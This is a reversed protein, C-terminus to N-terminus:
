HLPVVRDVVFRVAEAREYPRIRFTAHIRTSVNTTLAVHQHPPQARITDVVALLWFHRDLVADVACARDVFAHLRTEVSVADRALREHDDRLATLMRDREAMRERLLAECVLHGENVAAINRVIGLAYRADTNAAITGVARKAEFIAMGDVIADLPYRAIAIRISREPDHLALRAFARDLYARVEPNQRAELTQRALQQQRCREDLAKRAQEIQEPTPTEGHIQVRSRGGRDRRPRHNVARFFTTVVLALMSRALGRADDGDLLLPPATTKFLGFGGEVHGKNQPREVTARIRTTGDLTADIPPAHNSPKNDLLAALPVPSTVATTQKADLWADIVATSDEEDRLSVGVFAGSYADVFLELNFDFRVGCVVISVNSGDGVWQADPFFTLFADRLAREDPSRSERQTPMRAGHSSLITSVMTAGYPVRCHERLHNCFDTFAGNWITWETLVTQVHAHLVHTSTGADDAAPPELAPALAGARLWDEITDLPVSVADAFHALPLAPHEGRLALVHRRFADAYRLRGTGRMCGPHAAVFRLVNRALALRTEFAEISPTGPAVAPRGVPRQLSPLVANLAECLEYARSRTAGTAALIQAVSPHALGLSGARDRAALLLAAIVLPSVDESSEPVSTM